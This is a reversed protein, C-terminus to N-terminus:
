TGLGTLEAAIARAAPKHGGLPLAPHLRIVELLVGTVYPLSDRDAHDPLRGHGVVRDLEEQAAAQKDPHLVMYM